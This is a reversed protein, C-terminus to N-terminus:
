SIVGHRRMQRVEQILQECGRNASRSAFFRIPINYRRCISMTPWSFKHSICESQMWVMDAHILSAEAPRGTGFCHISPHLQSLVKTFAPTGGVIVIKLGDLVSIDLNSMEDNNDENSTDSTRFLAKSLSEVEADRELLLAELKEVKANADRMKEEADVKEKQLADQRAILTELQQIRRKMRELEDRGIITKDPALPAAAAEKERREVSPMQTRDNPNTDAKTARRREASTTIERSIERRESWIAVNQSCMARIIDQEEQELPMARLPRGDACSTRDKFVKHFPMAVEGMSSAEYSTVSMGQGPLVSSTKKGDATSICTPLTFTTLWTNSMKYLGYIVARREPSWVDEERPSEVHTLDDFLAEFMVSDDAIMPLYTVSSFGMKINQAMREVAYTYLHELFVLYKEMELTSSTRAIFNTKLDVDMDGTLSVEMKVLLERERNYGFKNILVSEDDITYEVLRVDPGSILVARAAYAVWAHRLRRSKRLRKMLHRDEKLVSFMKKVRRKQKTIFAESVIFAFEFWEERTPNRSFVSDVATKSWRNLQPQLESPISSLTGLTDKSQCLKIPKM